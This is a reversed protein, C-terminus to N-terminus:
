GIWWGMGFPREALEEGAEGEVGELAGMAMGYQVAKRQDGYGPYYGVMCQMVWEATERDVQAQGTIRAAEDAAITHHALRYAALAASMPVPLIPSTTPPQATTHLTLNITTLPHTPNLTCAASPLGCHTCLRQATTTPAQPLAPPTPTTKTVTHTLCTKLASGVTPNAGAPRFPPKHTSM